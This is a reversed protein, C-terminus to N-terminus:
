NNYFNVIDDYSRNGEYKTRKGENVLYLTPLYEIKFEDSIEKNEPLDVDYTITNIESNDKLKDWTPLFAKSAGCWPAYFLLLQKNSNNDFNELSELNQNPMNRSFLVVVTVGIILTVIILLIEVHKFTVNMKKNFIKLNYKKAM